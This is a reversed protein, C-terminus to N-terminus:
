SPSNWNGQNHPPQNPNYPQQPPQQNHNYPQNPNYPQSGYPNPHSGYQGGQPYQGGPPYQGGQPIPGGQGYPGPQPGGYQGPYQGDGPNFGLPGYDETKNKKGRLILVTAIGALILLGGGIVFWAWLPFGSEDSDAAPADATGSGSGSGTKYGTVEFGTTLAEFVDYTARNGDIVGGNTAEVIDGPMQISMTFEFEMGPPLEDDMAASPDAEAVFTFTDGNDILTEGDVLDETTTSTMRCALNEGSIDEIIVEEEEADFPDEVGLESFLDDCTYGFGSLMGTTDEMEMVMSASGDEQIQIAIDGRCASLVLLTPAIATIALARKTRTNM